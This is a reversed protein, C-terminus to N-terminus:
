RFARTSRQGKASQDELHCGNVCQWSGRFFRGRSDPKINASHRHGCVRCEMLGAFRNLLKMVKRSRSQRDLPITVPMTRGGSRKAKDGRSPSQARTTYRRGESGQPRKAKADPGSQHPTTPTTPIKGKHQWRHISRINTIAFFGWWGWSEGLNAVRSDVGIAV